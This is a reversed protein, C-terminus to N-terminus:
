GTEELTAQVSTLKWFSRVFIKLVVPDAANSTLIAANPIIAPDEAEELVNLVIKLQKRSWMNRNTSSSEEYYKKLKAEFESRDVIDGVSNDAM